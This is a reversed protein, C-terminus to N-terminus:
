SILRLAYTRRIEVLFLYANQSGRRSLDLKVSWAGAWFGKGCKKTCM